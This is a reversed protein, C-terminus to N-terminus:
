RLTLKEAIIGTTKGKPKELPLFKGRAGGHRGKYIKDLRNDVEGKQLDTLHRRLLNDMILQEERVM